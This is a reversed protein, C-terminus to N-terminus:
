RLWRWEYVGGVPYVDGEEPLTIIGDAVGLGVMDGSNGGSCPLAELVGDRYAVTCLLHYALPPKFSVVAGLRASVMADMVGLSQRLWEVFYIRYCVMTSAPNGHFGFVVPGSDFRGFLLPKGPRQAVKHFVTRMGLEGLVEPLFDYKGKSVAGSFLLVDFMELLRAITPRMLEKDDPLHFLEADIGEEGLMAAIMYSNSRRIQHAEPVQAIDVLEEGTSCVAVRPLQMVTVVDMGVSAMIGVMAASVRTGKEILVDGGNSEMGRVHINQGKRIDSKLITASGGDLECDEYPVVADTGAPLMAGTMVEICNGGDLLQVQVSGAAQIQEIPFVRQGSDFAASSIAIGDMTVRDFPPFDRDAVVDMALVRKMSQLLPVTETGYDVKNDRVLGLAETVSIM